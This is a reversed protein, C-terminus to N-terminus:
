YLFNWRDARRKQIDALIRACTVKGYNKNSMGFCKDFTAILDSLKFHTPATYTQYNRLLARTVGVVSRKKGGTADNIRAVDKALQDANLFATVPVYETTENDCMVDM